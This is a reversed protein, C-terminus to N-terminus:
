PQGVVSERRCTLSVLTGTSWRVPRIDWNPLTTRAWLTAPRAREEGIGVIADDVHLHGNILTGVEWVENCHLRHISDQVGNDSNERVVGEFSAVSAALQTVNPGEAPPGGLGNRVLLIHPCPKLEERCVKSEM